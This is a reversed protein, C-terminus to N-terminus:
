ASRGKRFLEFADLSNKVAKDMDWYQYCGLRGIPIIGTGRLLSRYQEYKKRNEPTNVPYFREMGKQYSKSYEICITTMGSRFVETREPHYHKFEHIRTYPTDPDAYNMVATGQWDQYPLNKWEFSLSRWGLEGFRYDFLEDLSGSYFVTCDAPLRSKIDRFDIGTLVEIGPHSLLNGFLKGYGNLPIGQFPDSFYNADFNNRVTLRTIIEAPLRKPDCNWQKRTYGLIFAEYLKRGVQSVAKGELSTIDGAPGSGAERELFEQVEYPKLSIGYFDNITKLNIPMQYVKGGANILVKHQYTNFDTFKRIYDWVERCPTHFIHSGFRHCEIGTEPVVESYATGGTHKRRDIVLVKEGLESAIREAIVAGSIGAGAVLYKVKSFM